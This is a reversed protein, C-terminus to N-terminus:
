SCLLNSSLVSIFVSGAVIQSSSWLSAINLEVSQLVVYHVSCSQANWINEANKKREKKKTQWFSYIKDQIEHRWKVLHTKLKPPTPPPSAPPADYFTALFVLLIGLSVTGVNQNGPRPTGVAVLHWAYIVFFSSKNCYNQVINQHLLLACTPGKIELSQLTCLYAARPLGLNNFTNPNGSVM